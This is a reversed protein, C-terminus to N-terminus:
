GTLSRYVKSLEDPLQAIDQIVMYQKDPCMERLYDHGSPDVTLCFTQVGQQRAETLAKMTDQVGYVKSSRDKGYDYDQPYGDSIIIMAKIRSDTKVLSRIGHRIAPGMRTSRAPELGGIRGRARNDYPDTFDKCLYYDVRERGYGSFGCISYSDGLEELAEAMLIVSEKEIDIIRKPSSGDNNRGNQERALFNTLFDEDEYDQASFQPTENEDPIIDDTSASMDLLFLASVDRDKRQRQVYINESPSIGLRRDVVAEVARELDLEDGEPVGKVKRLLEPKLRNLQKRVRKLLDGHQLLAEQVYEPVEDIDRSEFLTCWRPRYDSILHDWEDYLFRYEERTQRAVKGTRQKLADSIAPKEKEEDTKIDGNELETVLIGTGEKVDGKKLDDVDIDEPSIPTSLSIMDDEQGTDISEDLLEINDMVVATDLEGHFSIPEPLEENLLAMEEQTLNEIDVSINTSKILEYCSNLIRISDSVTSDIRVIPAMLETLLLSNELGQNSGPPTGEPSLGIQIMAELFKARPTGEPGRRNDLAHQKFRIVADRAGSFKHQIGWDIRADEIIRFLTRALRQDQFGKIHYEILELNDFTGFEFYGLQHLLTIKYFSFNDSVDDFISIREPLAILSGDTMPLDRYCMEEDGAPADDDALESLSVVRVKRGSIAEAYLQLVRKCDSFNVQGRLKELLRISTSSEMSLYALGAEINEQGIEIGKELWERMQSEYQLPLQNTQKILCAAFNTDKIEDFYVILKRLDLRNIEPVNVLENLIPDLPQHTQTWRILHPLLDQVFERDVLAELAPYTALLLICAKVSVRQLQSVNSWPIDLASLELFQVLDKREHEAINRALHSWALFDSSGCTSAVKFSSRIYDTILNSAHQYKGHVVLGVSEIQKINLWSEEDIGHEFQERLCLFYAHAPEYSYGGLGIGYGGRLLLEEMGKIRCFIVSLRIYANASEFAHWGSEAITLCQNAWRQIELATGKLEGLTEKLLTATSPNIKQLEIDLQALELM